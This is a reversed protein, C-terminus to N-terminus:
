PLFHRRYTERDRSSAYIMAYILGRETHSVSSLSLGKASALPLQQNIQRLIGKYGECGPHQFGLNETMLDGM